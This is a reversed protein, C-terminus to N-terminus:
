RLTLRDLLRLVNETCVLISIDDHSRSLRLLCGILDELWPSFSLSGAVIFLLLIIALSSVEKSWVGTDELVSRTHSSWIILEDVQLIDFENASFIHRLCDGFIFFRKLLHYLQFAIASEYSLMVRDAVLVLSPEVIALDNVQVLSAFNDILKDHSVRPVM